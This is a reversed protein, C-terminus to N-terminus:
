PQFIFHKKRNNLKHVTKSAFVTNQNVPRGQEPFVVIASCTQSLNGCNIWKSPSSILLVSWVFKPNEIWSRCFFKSLIACRTRELNSVASIEKTVVILGM